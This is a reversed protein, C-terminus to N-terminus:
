VLGHRTAFIAAEARNATGTKNLLNRVHTSATGVSITLEEAIERDTKGAAILRLVEVERQTLGAPYAAAPTARAALGELREQVRESLPTMGLRQALSAAEELLERARELEETASARGPLSAVLSDAFDCCCWALEPLYGAQRCFALSDEFHAIAQVPQGLTQALLGLIRDVSTMSFICMTGAFRTLYDYQERALATDSRLAALIALGMRTFFDVYTVRPSAAFATAASEAAPFLESEGSIRATLPVVLAAFSHELTPGPTTQRVVELLRQLYERGEPFNGTQYEEMTRTSLSRAESPSIGLSRDSFSRATPWDGALHAVDERTRLAVSLWFRDRLQEAAALLEASQQRARDLDGTAIHALVLSYRALAEAQPDDVQRVIECAPIGKDLTGAFHCYLMDVNTAEALTQ